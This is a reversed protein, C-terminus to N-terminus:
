KGKAIIPISIELYKVRMFLFKEDKYEPNQKFFLKDLYKTFNKIEKDYDNAKIGVITKFERVQWLQNFKDVDPRQIWHPEFHIKILINRGDAINGEVM